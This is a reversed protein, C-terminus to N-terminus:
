ADYDVVVDHTIPHATCTLIYGQKIEGETLADDADMKVKGSRLKARCTSCAGIQCSFPPDIGARMGAILVTEDSGLKIKHNEGYIIVEFSEIKEEGEAGVIKESSHTSQVFLERHIKDRSVGFMSIASSIEDMMAEPGCMYYEASSIYAPLNSKLIEAAINKDVRGTNSSWNPSAQTLYHIVKLNSNKSQLENLENNFIISNENKNTYILYVFSNKEIELVTKLISMLPTIGSGAAFLVYTKTNNANANVVFNGTAQMVDVQDGIKLKQNIYTSVKGQEVQKVTVTLNKDCFPSSSLSYARREEIGDINFKLTLYQGSQYEYERKLNEPIEFSVSVAEPSERKIDSVRLKYFQIAM